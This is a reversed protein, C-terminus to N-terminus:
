GGALLGRVLRESVAAAGPQKSERPGAVNLVRVGQARLWVRIRAVEEALRAPSAVIAELDVMTWPRDYQELLYLTYATGGTPFPPAIVLTGDSDRVNWETREEYTNSPTETLPYVAAIPGDEARRDRPCWGGCPVGLTLAADLAGRDVGTQGGSVVKTILASASMSELYM